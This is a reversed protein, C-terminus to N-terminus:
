ALFKLFRYADPRHETNRALWMLTTLLDSGMYEMTWPGTGREANDPFRITAVYM